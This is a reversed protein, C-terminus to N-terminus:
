VPEEEVDELADESIYFNLDKWFEPKGMGMHEGYICIFGWLQFETFGNEDVEPYSREIPKGGRAVILENLHDFRHYYIDKGYDNLRFSITTNLNLKKM